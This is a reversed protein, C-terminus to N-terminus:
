ASGTPTRGNGAPIPLTRLPPSIREDPDAVFWGRDANASPPHSPPLFPAVSISGEPYEDPRPLGSFSPIGLVFASFIDRLADNVRAITSAGELRGRVADGLENYFDLM